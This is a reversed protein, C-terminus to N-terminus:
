GAYSHEIQRWSKLTIPTLEREVSRFSVWSVSLLSIASGRSGSLSSYREERNKERLTSGRQKERPFCMLVAKRHMTAWSISSTIVQSGFCLPWMGNKVGQLFLLYLFLSLVLWHRWEELFNKPGPLSKNTNNTQKTVQVFWLLSCM